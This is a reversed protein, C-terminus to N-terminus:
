NSRPQTSLSNYIIIYHYLKNRYHFAQSGSCTILLIPLNEQLHPRLEGAKKFIKIINIKYSYKLKIFCALSIFLFHHM